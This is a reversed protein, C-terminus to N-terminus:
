LQARRIKNELEKEQMFRKRRARLRTQTDDYGTREHEGMVIGTIGFRAITHLEHPWCLQMLVDPEPLLIAIHTPTTIGRYWKGGEHVAAVPLHPTHSKLNNPGHTQNIYVIYLETDCESTTNISVIVPTEVPKLEAVQKRIDDVDYEKNM